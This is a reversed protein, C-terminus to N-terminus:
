QALGWRRKIGRMRGKYHEWTEWLRYLWPHWTEGRFDCLTEYEYEDKEAISPFCKGEDPNFASYGTVPKIEPEGGFYKGAPIGDLDNVRYTTLELAGDKFFPITDEGYEEDLWDLFEKQAIIQAKKTPLIDTLISGSYIGIEVSVYSFQIDEEYAGPESALFLWVQTKTM